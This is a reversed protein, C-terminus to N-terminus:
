KVSMECELIHDLNQKIQEAWIKPFYFKVLTTIFFISFYLAFTQRSSLPNVTDHFLIKFFLDLPKQTLSFGLSDMEMYLLVSAASGTMISLGANASSIHRNISLILSSSSYGKIVYDMILFKSIMYFRYEGSLSSSLKFLRYIIFLISIMLLIIICNLIILSAERSTNFWNVFRANLFLCIIWFATVKLISIIPKEFIWQDLKSAKRADNRNLLDVLVSTMWKANKYTQHFEDLIQVTKPKNM